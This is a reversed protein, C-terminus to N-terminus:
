VEGRASWVAASGCVGGCSNESASSSMSMGSALSSSTCGLAVVSGTGPVFRAASGRAESVAGFLLAFAGGLELFGAGLAFGDGTFLLGALFLVFFVGGALFPLAVFALLGAVDLAFDTGAAADSSVWAARPRPRGLFPSSTM